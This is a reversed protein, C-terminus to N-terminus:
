IPARGGLQCRTSSLQPQCCVQYHASGMETVRRAQNSKLALDATRELAIIADYIQLSSPIYESIKDATVSYGPLSQGVVPLLAADDIEVVGAACVGVQYARSFGQSDLYEKTYLGVRMEDGTKLTRITVAHDMVVIDKTRRGITVLTAFDAREEDTLTTVQEDESIEETILEGVIRRSEPPAHRSGDHRSRQRPATGLVTNASNNRYWKPRAASRSAPAPEEALVHLHFTTAM